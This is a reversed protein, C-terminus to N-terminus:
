VDRSAELVRREYTHMLVSRAFDVAIGALLLRTRGPGTWDNASPLRRISRSSRLNHYIASFSVCAAPQLQLRNCNAFAIRAFCHAARYQLHLRPYSYSFLNLYQYSCPIRICILRTCYMYVGLSLLIQFSLRLLAILTIEATFKQSQQDLSDTLLSKNLDSRLLPDLTLRFHLEAISVIEGMYDALHVRLLGVVIALQRLVHDRVGAEATRM